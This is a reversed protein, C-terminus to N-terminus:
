SISSKFMKLLLLSIPDAANIGIRRIQLTDQSKNNVGLHTTFGYKIGNKRLLDLTNQNFLGNPYAFLDNKHILQENLQMLSSEIEKKQEDDDVFSLIKHSSTHSGVRFGFQQLKQLEAWNMMIRKPPITPFKDNTYKFFSLDVAQGDNMKALVAEAGTQDLFGECVLYRVKDHWLWNDNEMFNTVIFFIASVNFKNLIPVAIDYNDKYGDDFTILLNIGRKGKEVFFDEPYCFNFHRKLFQIQKEFNSAYGTELINGRKIKYNNYKSFNHYNLVILVEEKRYMLKLLWIGGLIMFLISLAEKILFRVTLATNELISPKM